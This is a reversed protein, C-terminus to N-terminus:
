QCQFTCLHSGFPSIVDVIGGYGGVATVGSHHLSVSFALRPACQIQSLIAGKMDFRSVVPEAGVELIQNDDFIVDQAPAGTSIRSICESAPLNWLFLGPGSGCVLWNESADLAICSVCSSFRESKMDKEPAIVRVCRGSRCDWIRATGDESGTLIQSASNRVVICHLYDTHGSFVMKVKATDVDWCYACSDGAAAYISGRKTDVALANNEPIPSLAGWPGKHQPNVLDVVPQIHNGISCNVEKWKWGRIRGDDGCSLLLSDEDDGYFKVDYAPGDHGRLVCDPEVPLFNQAGSSGFGLPLRPICSAISYSALFGDSSAVVIADPNPDHSPAWATRFVTKTQAERAKVISDRYAEEDWNRADMCM